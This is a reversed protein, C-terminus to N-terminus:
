RRGRVRRAPTARDEADLRFRVTLRELERGRVAERTVPGPIEPAVIGPVREIGSLVTAARPTLAVLTGGATDVRIAAIASSDPLARTLDALLLTASRRGGDFAAVEGLTATTRRLERERV